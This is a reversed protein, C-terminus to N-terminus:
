LQCMFNAGGIACKLLKEGDLYQFNTRPALVKIINGGELITDIRKMLHAVHM